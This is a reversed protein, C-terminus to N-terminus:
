HFVVARGGAISARCARYLQLWAYGEAEFGGGPQEHEARAGGLRAAEAASLTGDPETRVGIAPAFALLEALLRVSSGVMGAGAVGSEEPLFLPDRFDVPVYYGASDSHCLLHSSFMSSEDAVEDLDREYQEPDCASAPTVAEGRAALVSARRLHTLHSYPFGASCTAGPAPAPSTAPPEQWDIGEGALAETLRDFAQRHHALGEQDHAALDHLLGVSIALGM